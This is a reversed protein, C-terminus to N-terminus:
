DDEEIEFEEIPEATVTAVPRARPSQYSPRNSIPRAQVMPNNSPMNEGQKFFERFRTTLDSVSGGAASGGGVLVPQAETVELNSVEAVPILTDIKSENKYKEVLDSQPAVLLTKLEEPLNREQLWTKGSRIERYLTKLLERKFNLNEEPAIFENYLDNLQNKYGQQELTFRDERNINNSILARIRKKYDNSIVSLNNEFAAKNGEFVSRRLRDM